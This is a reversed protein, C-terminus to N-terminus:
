ASDPKTGDVKLVAETVGMRLFGPRSGSSKCLWRSIELKGKRLLIRSLATVAWSWCCMDLWSEIFGKLKAEPCVVACFSGEDLDGVVEEDPWMLIRIRRSRGAKSVIDWVM